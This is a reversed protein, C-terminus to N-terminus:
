RILTLASPQNEIRVNSAAPVAEGDLSWTATEPMYFCLSAAQFFEIQATSEGTFDPKALARVIQHLESPSRPQKVLVGEFLGDNMCVTESPFKVMGGVSTSNSAAGFVYDGEFTRGDAEILVHYPKINSLDKIGELVYALHGLLNKVPQPASYSASTFAGFSAIYTFYRGGEFRGLDFSCPKGDAIAEAAKRVTIPIGASAAFDNTSGAPIYGIPLPHASQMNGNVVENLTGDGGCCVLLTHGLEAADRALEAAHGRANTLQVTVRHGRRCFIEVIHFLMAKSKMKGACPNLILLMDHM